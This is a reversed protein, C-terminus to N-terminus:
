TKKITKFRSQGPNKGKNPRKVEYSDIVPQINGHLSEHLDQACQKSGLLEELDETSLTM